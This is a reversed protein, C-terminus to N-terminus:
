EYLNCVHAFLIELKGWFRNKGEKITDNLSFHPWSTIICIGPRYISSTGMKGLEQWHTTLSQCPGERSQSVQAAHWEEVSEKVKRAAELGKLYFRFDRFLIVCFSPPLFGPELVGMQFGPFWIQFLCWAWLVLPSFLDSESVHCNETKNNKYFNLRFRVFVRALFLCM